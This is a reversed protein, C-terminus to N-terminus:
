KHEYMYFWHPKKKTVIAWEENDYFTYNKIQIFM